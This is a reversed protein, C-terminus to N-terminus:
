KFVTAYNVPIGQDNIVAYSVSDGSKLTADSNLQLDSQPAIMLNKISQHGKPNVNMSMFWPTPNTITIKNGSVAFRIKEPDITLPANLGAPRVFIKLRIRLPLVVKREAVSLAKKLAPIQYINLWFLSEKNAPLTQRSTLMLRLSRMEGPFMKVVPPIVIIPTISADPSLTLDGDDTWIQLFTENQGSNIVNISQTLDSPNFVIRTKDVNVVAWVSTSLLLGSLVILNSFVLWLRYNHM